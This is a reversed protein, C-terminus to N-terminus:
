ICSCLLEWSDVRINIGDLCVYGDFYVLVKVYGDDRMVKYKQEFENPEDM